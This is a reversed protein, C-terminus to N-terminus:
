RSLWSIFLKTNPFLSKQFLFYIIVFYHCVRQALGWIQQGNQFIGNGNKWSLFPLKWFKIFYNLSVKFVIKPTRICCLYVSYERFFLMLNEFEFDSKQSFIFLLLMCGSHFFVSFNLLVLNDELFGKSTQFQEFKIKLRNAVRWNLELVQHAVLESPILPHYFEVWCYEFEPVIEDLMCTLAHKKQITIVQWGDYIVTM